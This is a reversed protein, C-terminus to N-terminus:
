GGRLCEAKHNPIESTGNSMRLYLPARSIYGITEHVRSQMVVHVHM